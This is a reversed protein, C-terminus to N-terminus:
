VRSEESVTDGARRLAAVALLATVAFQAISLLLVSVATGLLGLHATLVYTLPLSTVLLGVNVLSHTRISGSAALVYYAITALGGVAGSLVLLGCVPLDGAMSQGLLLSLGREGMLVLVALAAGSLVGIVASLAVVRRRVERRRGLHVAARLDVLAAQSLSNSVVSLLMAPYSLLAYSGVAATSVLHALVYRPTFAGLSTVAAAFGLPWSFATLGALNAWVRGPASDPRLGKLLSRAEIVLQLSWSIGLATAAGVAGDFFLTGVFASGITLIARLVQSQAIVFIQGLRQWEGYILDILSDVAKAGAVLLLVKLTREDSILLRGLAVSLAFAGASGLLNLLVFDSLRYSVSTVVRALRLRLGLGLFIPATIALSLAYRGLDDDSALHALVLLVCLQALAYAANGAIAFVSASVASRDIREALRAMSTM